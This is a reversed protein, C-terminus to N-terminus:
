DDRQTDIAANLKRAHRAAFDATGAGVIGLQHAVAISHSFSHIGQNAVEKAIVRSLLRAALRSYNPEEAMLGTATRISLADLEETSAGDCLGSITTTAVRMPDVGELGACCRAVARVIKNVDVPEASGDRKRVRMPSAFPEERGPPRRAEMLAM